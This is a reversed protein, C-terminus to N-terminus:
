LLSNTIFRFALFFRALVTNELTEKGIILGFFSLVWSLLVCYVMGKIFGIAAGGIEDLNEMNPLRMSLNFVNGIAVLIILIMLFALMLGAVYSMTNCLTEIVADTMPIDKSDALSVAGDALEEARDEYFGVFQMCEYAYDYKLSPDEALIDELSKDSDGFGIRTLIEKRNSGSDIYGEVFPEMAPIVEGAYASSLLSGGFLSIIIVLLACIGGVLGKKYGGWTCLAIIFLLIIDIIIKM